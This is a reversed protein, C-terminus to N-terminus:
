YNMLLLKVIKTAKIYLLHEKLFFTVTLCQNIAQVPKPSKQIVWHV